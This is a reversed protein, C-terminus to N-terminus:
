ARRNVIERLIQFKETLGEDNIMKLLELVKPYKLLSSPVLSSSGFVINQEEISLENVETLLCPKQEKQKGWIIHNANSKKGDLAKDGLRPFEETSSTTVSSDTIVSSNSNPNTGIKETSVKGKSDVYKFISEGIQKSNTGENLYWVGGVCYFLDEISDHPRVHSYFKEKHVLKTIETEDIFVFSTDLKKLLTQDVNAAAIIALKQKLVYNFDKRWMILTFVKDNLITFGKPNLALALLPNPITEVETVYKKLRALTTDSFISNMTAISDYVSQFHTM